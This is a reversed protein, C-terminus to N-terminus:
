PAIGSSSRCDQVMGIRPPPPSDNLIMKQQFGPHDSLVLEVTIGDFFYRINMCNFTFIKEVTTDNIDNHVIM